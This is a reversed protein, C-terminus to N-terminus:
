LDPVEFKFIPYMPDHRDEVEVDRGERKMTEAWLLADKRSDTEYEFYPLANVWYRPHATM